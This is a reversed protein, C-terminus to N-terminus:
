EDDDWISGKSAAPKVVQLRPKPKQVPKAAMAPKFEVTQGNKYTFRRVLTAYEGKEFRAAIVGIPRHAGYLVFISGDPNEEVSYVDGPLGTRPDLIFRGVADAPHIKENM